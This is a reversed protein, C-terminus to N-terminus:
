HQEQDTHDHHTDHQAPDPLTRPRGLRTDPWFPGLVALAHDPDHNLWRLAARLYTTMAHGREALRAKSADYEGPDPRWSRQPNAHQSTM